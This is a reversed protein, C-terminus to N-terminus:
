KMGLMPYFKVLGFLIVFLISVWLPLGTKPLLVSVLLAVLAAVILFLSLTM